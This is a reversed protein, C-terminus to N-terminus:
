PPTQEGGQEEGNLLNRCLLGRPCVGGRGGGRKVKRKKQIDTETPISGKKLEAGTKEVL